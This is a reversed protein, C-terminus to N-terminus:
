EKYIRKIKYIKEKIKEKYIFVNEDMKYEKDPIILTVRISRSIDREGISRGRGAFLMGLFVALIILKKM